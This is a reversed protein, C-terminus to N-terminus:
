RKLNAQKLLNLYIISHELPGLYEISENSEIV